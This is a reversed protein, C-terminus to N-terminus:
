DYEYVMTPPHSVRDSGHDTHGFSGHLEEGWCWVERAGHSIACARKASGSVAVDVPPALSVILEPSSVDRDEDEGLFEMSRFGFCWVGGAIDAACTRESNADVSVMPPVGLVLTPPHDNTPLESVYSLRHGFCWLGGDRDILCSKFLGVGLDVAVPADIPRPGHSAYELFPGTAGLGGRGWCFVEGDALACAHTSCSAVHQVPPLGEIVRPRIGLPAPNDWDIVGYENSGWCWVREDEDIACNVVGRTTADGFSRIRPLGDVIQPALLARWEDPEDFVGHWCKAIGDFTLGCLSGSIERAPEGFSTPWWGMATHDFFGDGLSPDEGACEIGGLRDLVCTVTGTVAIQADRLCRSGECYGGAACTIGCGGCNPSADLPTECGNSGIGDCDGWGEVCEETPVCGSAMCRGRRGRDVCDDDDCCSVSVCADPGGADSGDSGDLAVDDVDLAADGVGADDLM